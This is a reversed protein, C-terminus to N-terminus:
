LLPKSFPVILISILLQRLHIGVQYKKVESAVAELKTVKRQSQGPITRNLRPSALIIECTNEMSHRTTGRSGSKKNEEVIDDKATGETSVDSGSTMLYSRDRIPGCDSSVTKIGTDGLKEYTSNVGKLVFTDKKSVTAKVTEEKSHLIQRAFQARTLAKSSMNSATVSKQEQKLIPLETLFVFFM